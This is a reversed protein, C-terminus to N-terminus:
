FNYNINYGLFIDGGGVGNTGNRYRHIMITLPANTTTIFDVIEFPDDTSRSSAIVQGNQYVYLNLDQSIKHNQSTYNPETLWAIAVKHRKNAQINNETFTISNNYNDFFASNNGRWWAGGTGWAATSYKIVSKAVAGISDANLIPINGAIMLAAKMMAPQEKCFPHQELISALFGAALPTAASTGTFSSYNSNNGLNIDTYMAIEPKRNGVESSKWQSYSTYRNPYDGGSSHVAGVTIANVAKGPSAVYSTTDCKPSCGSPCDKLNEGKNGAAVFNIVRNNYIYRDMEMDIYKYKRAESGVVQSLCEAYSHSGIEIPPYYNNRPNPPYPNADNNAPDYSLFGFIHAEPAAKQLVNVVLNHHSSTPTYSGVSCKDTYKSNVLVPSATKCGPEAVYVGIGDGNYGNYHGLTSLQITSLIASVDTGAGTEGVKRYDDIAFEKYNNVLASIEEATMYATWGLEDNSVIGPIPLNRKGKKQSDIKENANKMLIEYEKINVKKGNLYYNEEKTEPSYEYRGHMPEMEIPPYHMESIRVLRKQKSEAVAKTEVGSTGQVTKGANSKARGLVDTKMEVTRKERDRALQEKVWKEVEPSIIVADPDYPPLYEDKKQDLLEPYLLQSHSNQWMFCFLFVLGAQFKFYTKM